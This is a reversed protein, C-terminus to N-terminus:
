MVRCKKGARKQKEDNWGRMDPAMSPVDSWGASSAADSRKGKRKSSEDKRMGRWGKKKADKINKAASREARSPQRVVGIPMPRPM